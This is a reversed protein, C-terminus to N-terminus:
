WTIDTLKHWQKEVVHLSPPLLCFHEIDGIFDLNVEGSNLNVTGPQAALRQEM